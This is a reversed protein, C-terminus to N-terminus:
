TSINEYNTLRKDYDDVSLHSTSVMSHIDPTTLRRLDFPPIFSVAVGTYTVASATILGYGTQPAEMASNVMYSLTANVLLPQAISFGVLALRPLQIVFLQTKFARLLALALRREEKPKTNKWGVNLAESANSTALDEGVPYLDDGSLKNRYGHLFLPNLWLLLSRSFIGARDEPSTTYRRTDVIHEAKSLSELVLLVVKTVLVISRLWAITNENNVLWATRVRAIDFIITLLLQSQILPSPRPSRSHNLFSLIALGTITIIVVTYAPISVKTAIADNGAAYLGLESLM